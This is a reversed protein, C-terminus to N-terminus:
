FEIQWAALFDAGPAPTYTQGVVDYVQGAVVAVPIAAVKSFPGFSNWTISANQQPVMRRAGQPVRRASGGPVSTALWLYPAPETGTTLEDTLVIQLPTNTIALTGEITVEVGAFTLPIRYLTGTFVSFQREYTAGFQTGRVRLNVYGQVRSGNNYADTGGDAPLPIPDCGVGIYM